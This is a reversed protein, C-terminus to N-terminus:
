FKEAELAAAVLRAREEPTAATRFLPREVIDLEKVGRASFEIAMRRRPKKAENVECEL